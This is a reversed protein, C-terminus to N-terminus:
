TGTAPPQSSREKLATLRRPDLKVSIAKERTVTVAGAAQGKAKRVWKRSTYIVEGKGSKKLDSYLLALTAADRLTEVPPEAGKPLQVIVHSGPASRAHLWLDHSKALCFTLEENEAASRGVFIPLGDVSVFRRFPGRRKPASARHQSTSAVASPAIWTGDEISRMERRVTENEEEAQMIRVHLERDAALYKRHKKFYDNMNSLASKTPDLPLTVEPLGQDYYDVLTIREMGPTVTTLHAKLLEGYRGYERYATVKTLDERWADIRRLSKALSKRLLRLRGLRARDIAQKREKHQYYTEIARSMPFRDIATSPAFRSPTQPQTGPQRQPPHYAHGILPRQADLDRLVHAQEDLLLMNATPGTLQCVVIRTGKRTSVTLTVIRDHELQRIDDLRGGQVQARLFQCFSPPATPNPMSSFSVHLRATEPECSLLLRHTEGPVRVEFLLVRDGPQHIKQIRGHLLAPTIEQLVGAIEIASLAM